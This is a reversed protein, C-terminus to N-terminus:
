REGIRQGLVRLAEFYAEAETTKTNPFPLHIELHPAQRRLSFRIYRPSLMQMSEELRELTQAALDLSGHPAMLQLNGYTRTEWNHSRAQKLAMHGSWTKPDALELDVLPPTHLHARFIIFDERRQLRAMLVMWFVDRPALVLLTDLRRFPRKAQQISMEVVSSGLWRFTTKPGIRPLGGRLWKLMHDGRRLNYIMGFAFWGVFIVGLLVIWYRSDM